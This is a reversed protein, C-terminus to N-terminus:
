DDDRRRRRPPKPRALRHDHEELMLLTNARDHKLLTLFLRYGFAQEGRNLWTAAQDPVGSPGVGFRDADFHADQLLAWIERRGVVSALVLQWFRQREGAQVALERGKRRAAAPDANDEVPTEDSVSPDLDDDDTM